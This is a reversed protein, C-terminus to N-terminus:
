GSRNKPAARHSLVHKQYPSRGLTVLRFPDLEKQIL